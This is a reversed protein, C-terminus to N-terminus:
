PCNPPFSDSFFARGKWATGKGGTILLVVVNLTEWSKKVGESVPQFRPGTQEGMTQQERCLAHVLEEQVLPLTHLVTGRVEVSLVLVAEGAVCVALVAVPWVRIVACLTGAITKDEVFAHTKFLTRFPSVIFFGSFVTM